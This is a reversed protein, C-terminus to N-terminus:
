PANELDTIRQELQAIRQELTTITQQFPVAPLEAAVLTLQGYVYHFMERLNRPGAPTPKFTM